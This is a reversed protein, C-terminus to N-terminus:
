RHLSAEHRMRKSHVHRSSSLFPFAEVTWPPRILRESADVSVAHEGLHLHLWVFPIWGDVIQCWSLYPFFSFVYCVGLIFLLM